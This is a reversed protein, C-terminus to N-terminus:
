SSPPAKATGSKGQTANYTFPQDVGFGAGSGGVAFTLPISVAVNSVTANTLGYAALATQLDGKLNFSFKVNGAKTVGNSLQAQLDFKNGGGDNASGSKNLLFSQVVGGFDVTVPLSQLSIGAGITVKGKWQVTDQGTKNFKLKVTANKLTPPTIKPFNVVEALEVESICKLADSPLPNAVLDECNSKTQSSKAQVTVFTMVIVTGGAPITPTFTFGTQGLSNIGVSSAPTVGGANQMVFGLRPEFSTTGEPVSQATTFWLDQAGLNTDGSSTAIIQTQGASALLGKLSIGVQAPSPGTNTVINLWRAWPKNKSVYVKRTLTLNQASFTQTPFVLEQNTGNSPCDEGALAEGPNFVLPSGLPAGNLSTILLGNFGIFAPTLPINIHFQTTLTSTGGFFTFVVFYNTVTDAKLYTANTLAGSADSQTLLPTVQTNVNYRTGNSDELQVPLARALSAVALLSLTVLVRVAIRSRPVM